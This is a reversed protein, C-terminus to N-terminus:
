AAAVAEAKTEVMLVAAPAADIRRTVDVGHALLACILNEETYEAAKLKQRLESMQQERDKASVAKKGGNIKDTVLEDIRDVFASPFLWAMLGVTGEPNGLIDVGMWDVRFDNGVALISPAYKAGLQHVYQQVKKRMDTAPLPMAVLEAIQRKTQAIEYRLNTLEGREAVTEYPNRTISEDPIGLISRLM